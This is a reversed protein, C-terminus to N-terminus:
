KFKWGLIKLQAIASTTVSFADDGHSEMLGLAVLNDFMEPQGALFYNRWGIVEGHSIGLAHLVWRQENESIKFHEQVALRRTKLREDFAYRCADLFHQGNISVSSENDVDDSDLWSETADIAAQIVEIDVTITIKNTM